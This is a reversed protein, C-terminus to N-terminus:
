ITIGMKKMLFTANMNQSIGDKLKYDFVLEDNKFEVEFRMNKINEPYSDILQGLALDHTAIIGSANLRILQEILHKSGTQKDRSNTGKLIEDLIIFLKEGSELRDILVKLQKLEAFFYSENKFLSDKTRISTFIQIPSWKFSQACVPAGTSALVM